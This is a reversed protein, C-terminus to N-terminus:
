MHTKKNYGAKHFISQTNKCTFIFDIKKLIKKFYLQALKNVLSKSYSYCMKNKICSLNKNICEETHKNDLLTNTGCILGFDSIRLVAPINKKM